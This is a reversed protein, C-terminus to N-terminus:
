GAKLAGRLRSTTPAAAVSPIRRTAHPLELVFDELLAVVADLLVVVADLSAPADVAVVATPLAAAAVNVAL